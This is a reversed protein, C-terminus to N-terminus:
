RLLYLLPYLLVWILDVMHWFATVTVVNAQSPLWIALGLLVLGFLVHAFHFGTLLYYFAFFSNSDLTYGSLWVTRYEGTKVVCFLVGLLMAASLWGRCGTVKGRLSAEVALAAFLGSTLLVITNLGGTVPHLQQQSAIFLDPELARMWAYVAFFAAFVVLESIILVWMLPNGPLSNLPGWDDQGSAQNM